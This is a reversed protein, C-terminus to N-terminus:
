GKADKSTNAANSSHNSSSYFKSFLTGRHTQSNDDIKVDKLRTFHLAILAVTKMTSSRQMSRTARSNYLSASSGGSDKGSGGAAAEESSDKMAEMGFTDRDAEEIEKEEREKFQLFTNPNLTNPDDQTQSPRFNRPWSKSMRRIFLFSIRNLM